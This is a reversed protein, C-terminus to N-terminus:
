DFFGSGKFEVAASADGQKGFNDFDDFGEFPDVADMSGGDLDAKMAALEEKEKRENVEDFHNLIMVFGWSVLAFFLLVGFVTALRSVLSYERFFTIVCAILGASLTIILAFRRRNMSM